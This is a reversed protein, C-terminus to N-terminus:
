GTETEVVILIDGFTSEQVLRVSETRVIELTAIFALVLEQKTELNRFLELLNLKKAKKLRSRLTTIMEALTMEERQIDMQIEEKRREMIQQFKEFLDFITASVEMNNEDTEIPARTFVAQEVTARSWLMEAANKFKQHELLRDVLEQRPDEPEEEGEAAPEQPLLLRSKIEILTASMVLFEGAVAIDLKEMLKIYNLYERTIKAIPIDFINAQEKRILYLLLDLPGAFEGLTLQIEDRSERFIKAKANEFDFVIQEEKEEM